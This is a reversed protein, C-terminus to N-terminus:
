NIITLLFPFIFEESSETADLADETDTAASIEVAVDVSVVDEVADTDEAVAASAVGDVAAVVVDEGDEADGADLDADLDADPM